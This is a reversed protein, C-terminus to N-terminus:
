VRISFVADTFFGLNISVDTVHQISFFGDKFALDAASRADTASTYYGVVEGNKMLAYKGAHDALIRPLIAEFAEYNQDVEDQITKEM